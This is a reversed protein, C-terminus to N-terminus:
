YQFHHDVKPGHCIDESSTASLLRYQHSTQCSDGIVIRQFCILPRGNQLLLEGTLFISRIECSLIQLHIRLHAADDTFQACEFVSDLFLVSEDRAIELDV